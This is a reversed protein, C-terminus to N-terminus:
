SVASSEGPSESSAAATREAVDRELREKVALLFRTFGEVTVPRMVAGLVKGLVGLKPEVHSTWIVETGEGRRALRMTGGRHRIPLSSEVIQYDMRTPREFATIEEVFRAGMARVERLAGAGNREDRGGRLLRASKVGPYTAYSEHDTLADFVREIPAHIYVDLHIPEM